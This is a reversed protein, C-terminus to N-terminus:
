GTSGTPIEAHVVEFTQITPVRGTM